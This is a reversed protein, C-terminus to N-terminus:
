HPDFSNQQEFKDHSISLKNYKILALFRRRSEPALVLVIGFVVLINTALFFIFEEIPLVGALFLNLSQDPDITWTGSGIALSDAIGLFGTASLLTLGILHRHQWLIDAGFILQLTIPPLAWLLILGLYTGSSYGSLLILLACLWLVSTTAVSGIKIKADQNSPNAPSPLHRALFLLWLGVLLTQLIFFTYEEVPVWGLTIGTVLAPNYYWVGTAVLYNDWPTTYILALFVHLWVAGLPSWSAISEPLSRGRTHDIMTLITLVMLPIGLFMALFGFYTMIM